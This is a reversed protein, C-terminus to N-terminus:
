LLPMPIPIERIQYLFYHRLNNLKRYSCQTSRNYSLHFKYQLKFSYMNCDVNDGIQLPINRKTICDLITFSEMCM